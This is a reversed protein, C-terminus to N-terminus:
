FNEELRAAIWAPRLGWAAKGAHQLTYGTAAHRHSNLAAPNCTSSMVGNSCKCQTHVSNQM